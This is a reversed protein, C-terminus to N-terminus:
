TDQNSPLLGYLREFTNSNNLNIVVDYDSFKNEDYVPMVQTSNIVSAIYEEFETLMYKEFLRCFSKFAKDDSKSVKEEFVQKLNSEFETWTNVKKFLEDAFDPVYHGLQRYPSFVYGSAELSRWSLDFGNFVGIKKNKRLDEFSWPLFDMFNTKLGHALDFGNGTVLVRM